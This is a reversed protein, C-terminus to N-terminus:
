AGLSRVIQEFAEAAALPDALRDVLDPPVHSVLGASHDQRALTPLIPSWDLPTAPEGTALIRDYKDLELRTVLESDLADPKFTLYVRTLTPHSLNAIWRAVEEPLGDVAVAVDIMSLERSLWEMLRSGTRPEYGHVLLEPFENYLRRAASAGEAKLTRTMVPNKREEVIRADHGRALLGAALGRTFLGEPYDVYGLASAPFFTVNM